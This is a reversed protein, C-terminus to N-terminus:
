PAGQLARDVANILEVSPRWRWVGFAAGTAPTMGRLFLYLVDGFHTEYRYSPDRVRMWRHVAVTYLLGQFVYHHSVMQESLESPTYSGFVPGVNNSKYDAVYIRGKRRVILDISGNLFGRLPAWALARLAEPYEAPVAPDPHATLADALAKAVLPAGSRAFGGAIPMHFDLESRRDSRPVASLKFTPDEALLPTALVGHLASTIAPAHEVPVEQEVCGALVLEPLDTADTFDVLELAGHCTDGVATGGNPVDALPVRRRDDGTAVGDEDPDADRGDKRGVHETYSDKTLKSFSSRRWLLDLATTRTLPRAALDPADDHKFAVDKRSVKVESVGITSGSSAAIADVEARLEVETLNDFRHETAGPLQDVPAKRHQHFLWALASKGAGDIPGWYVVTRHKARTLSVYALRITEAFAERKAAALRREKEPDDATRMDLIRTGDAERVRLLNEDAKSLYANTHLYPCWVMPWELGKAKHATVVTVADDDAELRSQAAEGSGPGSDALWQVIAVPGRGQSSWAHILEGLHLLDGVRRPGDHGALTREVVGAETLFAQFAAAFTQENWLAHWRRFRGVEASLAADDIALTAVDALTWGFLGTLLAHGRLSDDTPDAIARLVALLEARVPAEFVNDDTRVVVPVGYARLEDRVMRAEANRRVLVAVDRPRGVHTGGDEDVIRTGSALWTAVDRACLAALAAAAAERDDYKRVSFEGVKSPIYRVVLPPADDLLRRKTHQATAPAHTIGDVVYPARLGGFLHNVAEVLGPDSRHNRVLAPGPEVGDVRKAELYTNVDAGRFAYIAQKPDGILWLKAHGHFLTHFIAWQVPDTDQFEDILAVDYAARVATLLAPSTAPDKVADRLRVLLDNYTYSRDRALRDDIADKAVGAFGRLMALPAAGPNAGALLGAQPAPVVALEPDDALKKALDILEAPEGSTNPWGAFRRELAALVPERLNHTEATWYDLAVERAVASADGTPSVDFPSASELAFRSLMRQCFGHITCITAMDFQELARRLSAEASPLDRAHRAILDALDPDDTPRWKASQQARHVGLACESLRRRVRGRLEATAADTFTVVLIKEIPVQADVVQEAVIQTIRWTKGTGASAEVLTTTM